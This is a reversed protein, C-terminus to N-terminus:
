HLLRESTGQGRHAQDVFLDNLLYFREMTVSSFTPYLQTFGFGLEEKLSLFIVPENKQVRRQLFIRVGTIDSDQVYDNFLPMLMDLHDEIALAIRIM